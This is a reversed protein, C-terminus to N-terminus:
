HPPGSQLTERLLHKQVKGAATRPLSQVIQFHKPIKFKALRRQCHAQAFHLILMQASNRSLIVVRKGQPEGLSTRLVHAARDVADDLQGYTLRQDAALDYVALKEPTTRAFHAIFDLLLPQVAAEM